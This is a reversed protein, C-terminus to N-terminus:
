KTLLRAKYISPYFPLITPLSWLARYSIRKNHVEGGWLCALGERDMRSTNLNAIKQCYVMWSVEERAVKVIKTSFNWVVKMTEFSENNLFKWEFSENNNWQQKLVVKMEVVKLLQQFSNSYNKLVHLLHLM